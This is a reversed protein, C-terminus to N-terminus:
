QGIHLPISVGSMQQFLIAGVLRTDDIPAFGGTAPGGTVQEIAGLRRTVRQGAIMQRRVLFTVDGEEM